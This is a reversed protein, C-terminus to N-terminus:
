ADVDRHRAELQRRDGAKAVQRQPDLSVVAVAQQRLAPRVRERELGLVGGVRLGPEGRESSRDQRVRSTGAEPIMLVLPVTVLLISTFVLFILDLGRAQDSAFSLALVVCSISITGGALRFTGRIGSISAAKDPAQDIAANSSAPNALGMGIGGISIVAALLWFGDLSVPGIHLATWGQALLVFTLGVLLMGVLMPM